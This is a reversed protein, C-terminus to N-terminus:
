RPGAFDARHAIRMVVVVHADEDVEVLVRYAIEVYGSRMGALEAGLTKTVRSPNEALPGDCSLLVADALKAPMRELARVAPGTLRVEFPEGVAVVPALQARVEALSLTRGAAIDAKAEVVEAHHHPDTLWRLTETLLELDDPFILVAAPKGHRTIVVADHTAEVSEVLFSLKDKAESVSIAESVSMAQM